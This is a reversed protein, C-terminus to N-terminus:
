KEEKEKHYGTFGCYNDAIRFGVHHADDVMGVIKRPEFNAARLQEFFV